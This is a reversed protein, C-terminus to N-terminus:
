KNSFPITLSVNTKNPPLILGAATPKKLPVDGFTYQGELSINREYSKGFDSSVRQASWSHTYSGSGVAAKFVAGDYAPLPKMDVGHFKVDTAIFDMEQGPQLPAYTTGESSAFFDIGNFTRNDGSYSVNAQMSVSLTTFVKAYSSAVYGPGDETGIIGADWTKSTFSTQGFLDKVIDSNEKGIYRQGEHAQMQNTVTNDWVYKGKDTKIWDKAERGDPDVYRMPNDLCFNYPSWGAFKAALPDVSLFRGLRPNYMRAGFDYSNGEGSIEDDKRMGNFGFDYKADEDVCTTTITQIDYILKVNDLTISHINNNTNGGVNNRTVFSLTYTGVSLNSAFNHNQPIGAVTTFLETTSNDLFVDVEGSYGTKTYDFSLKFNVGAQDVTFTKKAGIEVNQNIAKVIKLSENTNSIVSNTNATEFGGIECPFSKNLITQVGGDNYSLVVNDITIFNAGANGSVTNTTEFVLSYTGASLSFTGNITNTTGSATTTFVMTNDTGIKCTVNGTYGIRTLDFSLQQNTIAQALTFSVSASIKQNPNTSKSIKLKGLDNLVSTNGIPSFGDASCPAFVDEFITTTVTETVNDECIQKKFNRGDLIVGYPSYDTATKIDALFGDLTNGNSSQPFKRDSIVSLVNGLQSFFIFIM